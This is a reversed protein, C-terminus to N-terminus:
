YGKTDKSDQKTQFWLYIDLLEATPVMYGM